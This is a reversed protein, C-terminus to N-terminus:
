SEVKRGFRTGSVRSQWLGSRPCGPPPVRIEFSPQQRGCPWWIVLGTIKAVKKHFKKGCVPPRKQWVGTSKKKGCVLPSKQWVGTSKKQWVGTSKKGCVLPSKQWVGTSKKRGCVPPSKAVYWHVRKGCVPPSKGAVCRHVKEKRKKPFVSALESNSAFHSSMSKLPRDGVRHRGSVLRFCWILTSFLFTPSPLSTLSLFTSM